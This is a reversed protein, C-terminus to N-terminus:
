NTSWVNGTLSRLSSWRQRLGIISGTVEGSSSGQLGRGTPPTLTRLIRSRIRRRYDQIECSRPYIQEQLYELLKGIRERMLVM